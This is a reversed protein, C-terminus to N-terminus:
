VRGGNEVSNILGDTTKCQGSVESAVEVLPMFGM